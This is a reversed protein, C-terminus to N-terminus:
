NLIAHDPMAAIVSFADGKHELINQWLSQPTTKFIYNPDADSILWSGNKMEEDLQKKSWGSYGIFFRVHQPQILDSAILFKLTEYRGGWWIGPAILLSDEVLDGLSHLFHLTDQQVPGGYYVEAEFDPFDSVLDTINMNLRKNLIFGFSGERRHECLLVAARKFHPDLMFPEALLIKGSKIKEIAM